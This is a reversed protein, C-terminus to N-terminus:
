YTLNESRTGFTLPQQVNSIALLNEAPYNILEVTKNPVKEKLSSKQKNM